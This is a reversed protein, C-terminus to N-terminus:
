WRYLHSAPQGPLRWRVGAGLAATEAAMPLHHGADPARVQDHDGPETGSQYRPEVATGDRGYWRNMAPEDLFTGHSLRLTLLPSLVSTQCHGELAVSRRAM